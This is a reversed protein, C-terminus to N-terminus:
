ESDDEDDELFSLGGLQKPKKPKIKRNAEFENAKTMMDNYFAVDVLKAMDEDEGDHVHELFYKYKAAEEQKMFKIRNFFARACIMSIYAHPNSYRQTDFNKCYRLCVDIAAGVMAEKWTDTYRNFRWHHTFGEAIKMIAGGIFEPMRENPNEKLKEKWAVFAQYLEENDVYNAM